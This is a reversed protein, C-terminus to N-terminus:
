ANVNKKEEGVCESPKTETMALIADDRTSLIAFYLRISEKGGVRIM